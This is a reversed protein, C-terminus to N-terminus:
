QGNKSKEITQEAPVRAPYLVNNKCTILIGNSVSNYVDWWIATPMSVLMKDRLSTGTNVWIDEKINKM